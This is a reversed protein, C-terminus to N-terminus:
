YLKYEQNSMVYGQGIYFSSHLVHILSILVREVGIYIGLFFPLEDLDHSSGEMISTDLIFEKFLIVVAYIKVLFGKANGNLM